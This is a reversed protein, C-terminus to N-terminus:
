CTCGFMWERRNLRFYILEGDIIEREREEEEKLREIM